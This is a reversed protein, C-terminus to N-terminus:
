GENTVEPLVKLAYERSYDPFNPIDMQVKLFWKLKNREAEFTHMADSPITFTFSRDIPNKPSVKLEFEVKQDIVNEHHETVTSTGQQYTATERLILTFTLSRLKTGRKFAQKYHMDFEDERRLAVGTILLEPPSVLTSMLVIFGAFLLAGIVFPGAFFGFFLTIPPGGFSDASMFSFFVFLSWVFILGVWVRSLSKVTTTTAYAQLTEGFPVHELAQSMTTLGAEAAVDDYPRLTM